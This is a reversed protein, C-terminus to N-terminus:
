VKVETEFQKFWELDKEKYFKLEVLNKIEDFSMGRYQDSFKRHNFNTSPFVTFIEGTVKCVVVIKKDVKCSKTYFLQKKAQKTARLEKLKEKDCGGEWCGSKVDPVLDTFKDRNIVGFQDNYYVVYYEELEEFSEINEFEKATKETAYMKAVFKPFVEMFKDSDIIGVEILGTIMAFNHVMKMLITNVQGNIQYCTQLYGKLTRNHLKRAYAPSLGKLGVNSEDLTYLSGLTKGDVLAQTGKATLVSHIVAETHIMEKESNTQKDILVIICVIFFSDLM